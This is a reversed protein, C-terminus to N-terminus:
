TRDGDRENMVLEIALVVLVGVAEAVSLDFEQCCYKVAEAARRTLEDVANESM